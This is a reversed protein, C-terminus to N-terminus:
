RVSDADDLGRASNIGNPRIQRAWHIIDTMDSRLDAQMANPLRLMAPIAQLAPRVDSAPFSMFATAIVGGVVITLGTLGFLMLYGNASFAIPSLLILLGFTAGAVPGRAYPPIAPVSAVRRP